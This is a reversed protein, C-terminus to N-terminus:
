IVYSQLIISIYLFLPSLPLLFFSIMLFVYKEINLIIFFRLRGVQILRIDCIITKITMQHNLYEDSFVYRFHIGAKLIAAYRQLPKRENRFIIIIFLASM